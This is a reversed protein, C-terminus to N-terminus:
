SARALLQQAITERGYIRDLIEASSIFEEASPDFADSRGLQEAWALLAKGGWDDPPAVLVQRSTGHMIAAEFDFFSGNLNRMEVSGETGYLVVSIEADKGASLNWSCTMRCTTGDALELTSLAFDEVVDPDARLKSGGAYLSSRVESVREFGKIWMILDVLHVGLDIVCGGGSQKVDYFWSKDPGYANHFVLDAAYLDGIRGSDVADRLAQMANTHRYSLDLGLLKNAQRASAVVDRVERATRGLPKQCFVAIGSDLCAITQEAHLASPTAIVIGDLQRSTLEELNACIEAQPALKRAEGVCEPSPDSIAAIDAIGASALAGMRMRGIWGLGLFGLRPKKSM